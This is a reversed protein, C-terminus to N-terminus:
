GEWALLNGLAGGLWRVVLRFGVLVILNSLSMEPAGERSVQSEASM